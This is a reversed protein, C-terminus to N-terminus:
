RIVPAYWVDDFYMGSDNRGFTYKVINDGEVHYPVEWFITLKKVEDFDKMSAALDESYNETMNRTNKAGIKVDWVYFVQVKSISTKHYEKDTREEIHNEISWEASTEVPDIGESSEEEKDDSVEDEEADKEPKDDDNKVDAVARDSKDPEDTDTTAIFGIVSIVLIAICSGM